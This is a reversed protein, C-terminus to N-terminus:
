LHPFLTISTFISCAMQNVPLPLSLDNDEAQILPPVTSKNYTYAIHKVVCAPATHVTNYDKTNGPIPTRAPKLM